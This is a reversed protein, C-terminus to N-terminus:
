EYLFFRRYIGGNKKQSSSLELLGGFVEYPTENCPTIPHAEACGIANNETASKSKNSAKPTDSYTSNISIQWSYHTASGRSDM